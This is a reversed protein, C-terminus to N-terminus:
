LQGRKAAAKARETFNTKSTSELDIEGRLLKALLTNVCWTLNRGTKNSYDIMATKLPKPVIVAIREYDTPQNM